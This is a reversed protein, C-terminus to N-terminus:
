SIVKGKSFDLATYYENNDKVKSTRQWMFGAPILCSEVKNKLENIGANGYTIITIRIVHSRAYLANDSHLAPTETLDTYVILPYTNNEPANDHYIQEESFQSLLAQAVEEDINM